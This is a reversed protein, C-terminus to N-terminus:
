QISMYDIIHGSMYNILKIFVLIIDHGTIHYIQGSQALKMDDNM